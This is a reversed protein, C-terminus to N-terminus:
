GQILKLVKSDKEFCSGSYQAKGHQRDFFEELAKRCEAETDYPKMVTATSSGAMTIALIWHM